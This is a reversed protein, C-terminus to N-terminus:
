ESHQVMWDSDLGEEEPDRYELQYEYEKALEPDLELLDNYSAEVAIPCSFTHCEGEESEPHNCGYGNNNESDCTYGCKRALDDIAILKRM